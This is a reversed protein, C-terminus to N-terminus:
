PTEELLAGIVYRQINVGYPCFCQRCDICAELGAEMAQAARDRNNAPHHHMQALKVLAFAGRHGNGGAEDCMSHCCLCEVCNCTNYYKDARDTKRWAPLDLEAEPDAHLALDRLDELLGRRDVVLDRIVPLHHMPEITQGDELPTRCALRDEGSVRVGCLGCAQFRCGYRFALSADQDDYIHMLAGLATEGDAWPVSYEVYAGGSGDDETRWIKVTATKM